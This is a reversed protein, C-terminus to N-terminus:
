GYSDGPVAVAEHASRDKSVKERQQFVGGTNLKYYVLYGKGVVNGTWRVLALYQGNRGIFFPGAEMSFAPSKKM